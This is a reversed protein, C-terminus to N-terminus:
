YQLQKPKSMVYISIKLISKKINYQLHRTLVIVVNKAPFIRLQLYQFKLQYSTSHSIFIAIM